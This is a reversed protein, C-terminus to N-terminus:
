LIIQIVVFIVSIKMDNTQYLKAFGDIPTKFMAKVMSLLENDVKVRKVGGRATGCKSCFM